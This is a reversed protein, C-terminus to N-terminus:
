VLEPKKRQIWGELQRWFHACLQQDHHRKSQEIQLSLLSSPTLMKSRSARTHSDSSSVALETVNWDRVNADKVQNTYRPYVGFVTLLNLRDSQRGASRESQVQKCTESVM